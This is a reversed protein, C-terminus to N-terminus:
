IKRKAEMVKRGRSSRTRNRKKKKGIKKKQKKMMKMKKIIKMKKKIKTRDGKTVYQGRNNENRKDVHYPFKIFPNYFRKMYRKKRM